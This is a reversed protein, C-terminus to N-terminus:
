REGLRMRASRAAKNHSIEQWSPKIVKKTLIKLKWQQELSKFINKVLRDEGSHYSIIAVRGNPILFDVFDTLFKKLEGLEDNALIRLVQFIVAIKKEGLWLNKLFQKFEMTTQLPQKKRQDLIERALWKAFKPWFDWYNMLDDVFQDFKWDNILQWVPKWKSTDFRMDLEGDQKISFWRQSDRFHEMNVGLDLLMFDVKQDKLIQKLNAYSSHVFDIRDEFNKLRHKAKQLIQLDKDVGFWKKIDSRAELIAKTHGWHGLTGDFGVELNAPLWELVEKLLVPQHYGEWSM